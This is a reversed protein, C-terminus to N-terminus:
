VGRVLVFAGADLQLTFLDEPSVLVRLARAHSTPPTQILEFAGLRRGPQKDFGAHAKTGMDWLTGYTSVASLGEAM